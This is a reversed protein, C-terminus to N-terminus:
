SRPLREVVLSRGEFVGGWLGIIFFPLSSPDALQCVLSDIRLRKSKLNKGALELPVRLRAFRFSYRHGLVQGSLSSMGRVNLVEFDEGAKWGYKGTWIRHPIISIPAGTDLYAFEVGPVPAVRVMCSLHRLRISDLGALPPDISLNGDTPLDVGQKPQAFLELFPM